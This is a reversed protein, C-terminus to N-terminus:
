AESVPRGAHLHRAATRQLSEAELWPLLAAYWCALGGGLLLGGLVDSGSHLGFDLRELGALGALLVALVIAAPRLRRPALGAAIGGFLLVRAAHGSPYTGQVLAVALRGSAFLAPHHLLLAPSPLRLIVEVVLLVGAVAPVLLAPLWRRQGLLAGMLLVAAAVGTRPSGLAGPLWLAARAGAPVLHVALSVAVADLRASGGPEWVATFLSFAGLLVLACAGSRAQADMRWM